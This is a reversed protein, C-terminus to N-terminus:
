RLSAFPDSKVGLERLSPLALRTALSLLPSSPAETRGHSELICCANGAASRFIARQIEM